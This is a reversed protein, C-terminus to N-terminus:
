ERADIAARIRAHEAQKLDFRSFLAIGIVYGILPLGGMLFLIGNRVSDPQVQNPQYVIVELAVGVVGLMLGGALKNAFSWAAFFSGEKREGTEYEDTDVVDAKLSTGITNSCAGATGSLISAFVMLPWNGPTLFIMLGCGVMSQAMAFMWLHQKEFRDGLKVWVPIGAIQSVAYVGLFVATLGPM